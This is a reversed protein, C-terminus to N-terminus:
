KGGGLLSNALLSAGVGAAGSAVGQGVAGGLGGGGRPARKFRLLQPSDNGTM